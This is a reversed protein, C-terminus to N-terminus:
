KRIEAIAAHLHVANVGADRLKVLGSLWLVTTCVHCSQQCPGKDCGLGESTNLAIKFEHGVQVFTNLAM